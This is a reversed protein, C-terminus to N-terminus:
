ETGALPPFAGPLGLGTIQHCVFCTQMYVAKGREISAALDPAADQASADATFFGLAAVALIPKLKM